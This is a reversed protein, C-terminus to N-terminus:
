GVSKSWMAVPPFEREIEDNRLLLGADAARRGTEVQEHFWADHEARERATEVFEWRLDRLAEADTRGSTKAADRFAEQRKEDVEFTFAGPM